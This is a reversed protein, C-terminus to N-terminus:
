KKEKVTLFVEVEKGIEYFTCYSLSWVESDLHETIEELTGVFAGDYESKVVYLKDEKMKGGIFFFGSGM